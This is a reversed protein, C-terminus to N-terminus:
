GKSVRHQDLVHRTKAMEAEDQAKGAKSRGFKAANEGAKLKKAARAKSKRVRNLNVPSGSM